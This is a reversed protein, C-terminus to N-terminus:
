ATKKLTKEAVSKDKWQVFTFRPTHSNKGKLFVKENRIIKDGESTLGDVLSYLNKDMLTEEDLVCSSIPVVKDPYLTESLQKEADLLRAVRLLAQQEDANMWTAMKQNGSGVMEPRLAGRTVACRFAPKEILSYISIGTRREIEKATEDLLSALHKIKEGVSKYLHARKKEDEPIEFVVRVMDGQFEIPEGGISRFVNIWSDVFPFVLANNDNLKTAARFLPESKKLDLEVVLAEIKQPLPIMRHYKSLPTYSMLQSQDRFEKFLIISAIGYAILPSYRHLSVLVQPGALLDAQYFYILGLISFTLSFQSLRWFRSKLWHAKNKQIHEQVWAAQALCAITALFYCTPVLNKAIFKSAMFFQPGTTSSLNLYFAMVILISTFGVSIDRRIRALSFGALAGGAAESFRLLMELQYARYRPIGLYFSSALRISLSALILGLLSFFLLERKRPTARWLSFFFISIILYIFGALFHRNEDLFNRLSLLGDLTGTTILGTGRLYSSEFLDPFASQSNNRIWVAIRVPSKLWSSPMTFSVLSREPESHSTRFLVDNAYIKYEGNIIGIFIHNASQEAAQKAEETTLDYIVWFPRDKFSSVLSDHDKDARSHKSEQALPNQPHAPCKTNGPSSCVDAPLDKVLEPKIIKWRLNSFTFQIPAQNIENWRYMFTPVFIILGAIVLVAFM